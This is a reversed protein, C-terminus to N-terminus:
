QGRGGVMVLVTKLMIAIDGALWHRADALRMAYAADYGLKRLVDADCSDYGQRIQSLGTIGPRLGVTRDAFFPAIRDLRRHFAPREPRPGVLSMDGRLVNVLQPIEDLRTLRLLRGVATIRPDRRSALVAGSTAEADCRMSRFKLILFLETRDALSRGVRLQRYIVPGPSNLKIALALLPFLPATLLLGVLAGAIDMGRKIRAVREPVYPRMLLSAVALDDTAIADPTLQRNSM